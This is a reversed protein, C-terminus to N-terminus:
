TRKQRLKELYRNLTEVAAIAIWLYPLWIIPWRLMVSWDPFRAGDSFLLWQGFMGLGLAIAFIFFWAIVGGVSGDPAQYLRKVNM